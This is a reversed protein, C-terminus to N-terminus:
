EGGTSLSVSTEVRPAITDLSERGPNFVLWAQDTPRLRGVFEFRATASGKTVLDLFALRAGEMCDGSVPYVDGEATQLVPPEFLLDGAGHARVTVTMGITDSLVRVGAVAIQHPSAEPKPTATAQLLGAETLSSVQEQLTGLEGFIVVTMVILGAATLAALTWLAIREILQKKEM